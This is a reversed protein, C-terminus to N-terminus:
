GSRSQGWRNSRCVDMRTLKFAGSTWEILKSRGLLRNSISRGLAWEINFLRATWKFLKSRCQWEVLGWRDGDIRVVWLGNSYTLFGWFDMRNIKFSRTWEINFSGSDMRDQVVWDMGNIKFSM